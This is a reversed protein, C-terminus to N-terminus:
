QGRTTRELYGVRSSGLDRFREGVLELAEQNLRRNKVWRRWGDASAALRAFCVSSKM